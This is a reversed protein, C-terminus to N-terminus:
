VDLNQVELANTEIFEADLITVSAPMEQVGRQRFDATVVIEELVESDPASSFSPSALLLLLTAALFRSYSRRHM